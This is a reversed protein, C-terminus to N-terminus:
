KQFLSHMGYAYTDSDHGTDILIEFSCEDNEDIQIRGLKGNTMMAYIQGEIKITSTVMECDDFSDIQSLVFVNKFNPLEVRKYFIAYVETWQNFWPDYKEIHEKHGIAYLFGNLEFLGFKTRTENMYPLEFWQNSSPSYVEVPGGFKNGELGGAVCIYLDLCYSYRLFPWFGNIGSGGM